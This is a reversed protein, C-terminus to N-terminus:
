IRFGGSVEIRQANIWKSDESCLFAIVSGIDDALGVRSLATESALHNNLDSIDRVAGGGFDTEIAGPAVSNVRIKRSGLELAQYKSLSDVAAKMAGYASYGAFSYRALGSSTNVISSGDNLLPLLKQTLFYPGKFHINTMADLIEETTTEFSESIGVGANNVLADLKASSFATDLVDKVETVFQDFGATTSIDLPLAFAKQGITKIEKVVEDAFEKKTQYTLIIDFGKKALQIVSDKGLGRSAGTVLAIKNLNKTM